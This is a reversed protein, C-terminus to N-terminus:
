RITWGGDIVIAAGHIFASIDSALYTALEAVEEPRGMRGAPVSNVIAQVAPADQLFTRAMDTDMSGPCIANARIGQRGYDASIQRTLGIVGHKSTTYALGGAQAILGAMSAINVFTGAGQQLMHPLAAKSVRYCGKLNVGIVRDWLAEDTDLLPAFGDLIGANNCVIDIRGHASIAADILADVQAADNVEAAIAIASGGANRIAEATEAALNGDLDSSVVLAGEQGFKEAIARGLGKGSGTVIAVKHQLRQM